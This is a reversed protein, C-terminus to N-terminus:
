IYKKLKYTLFTTAYFLIGGWVTDMLLAQKSWNDLIAYNTTEYVGYIVWGLLAAEFPSKNKSIIFHNLGLILFIYCLVAGELRFNIKNGQISKIMKNFFNSALGLYVADIVVFLMGSLIIDKINLM